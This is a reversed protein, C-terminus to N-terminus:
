TMAPTPIALSPPFYKEEGIQEHFDEAQSHGGVPDVEHRAFDVRHVGVVLRLLFRRSTLHTLNM